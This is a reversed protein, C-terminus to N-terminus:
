GEVREWLANKIKKSIFEKHKVADEASLSYERPAIIICEDQVASSVIIKNDNIETGFM